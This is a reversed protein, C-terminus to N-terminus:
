VLFSSPPHRDQGGLVLVATKCGEKVLELLGTRFKRDGKGKAALQLRDPYLFGLLFASVNQLLFFDYGKLLKPDSLFLALNGGM